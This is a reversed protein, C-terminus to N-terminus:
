KVAGLSLGKVLYKQLLLVLVVIPLTALLGAASLKGWDVALFGVFQTAMYVPLTKADFSTLTFAFFFDNWSFIFGLASVTVLGGAVNPLAISRFTRWASAGDLFAAEELERPLGAFFSRMVWVIIAIVILIHAIMVGALTDIIGIANYVKVFPTIIVIAPLMRTSLIFNAIEERGRLRYRALVYAFPVGIALGIAVAGAGVLLSTLAANLFDGSGIVAAYNALTPAFVFKPPQAIVDIQSKLSQLVMWAIPALVGAACVLLWAYAVLRATARPKM